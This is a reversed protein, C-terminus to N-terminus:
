ERSSGRSRSVGCSRIRTGSARATSKTGSLPLLAESNLPNALPRTGEESRWNHTPMGEAVCDDHTIDQLREVRVDTVELTIRSAWRPMFISPRGKGWAESKTPVDAVYQVDSCVLPDIESPKADDWEVGSRWSERVWLQDGSTGYPCRFESIFDQTPSGGISHLFWQDPWQKSRTFAVRGEHPQPKVARRTQTKTGALLAKVLPASFLIPWSKM